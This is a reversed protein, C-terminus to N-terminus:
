DAREPAGRRRGFEREVERLRLVECVLAGRDAAGLPRGEVIAALLPQLVTAPLRRVRLPVLPDSWDHHIVRPV